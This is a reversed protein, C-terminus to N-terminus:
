NPKCFTTGQTNEQFKLEGLNNQSGSSPKFIAADQGYIPASGGNDNSAGMDAGNYSPPGSAFGPQTFPEAHYHADGKGTGSM